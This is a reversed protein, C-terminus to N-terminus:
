SARASLVQLVHEHVHGNTAVCNGSAATDRGAFDTFRGGAEEVLIKLAALDWLQVGAEVWAEARGALVMACGALDGYCRAQACSTTLRLVPDRLTGAFLHHMEGLSLTSKNASAPWNM